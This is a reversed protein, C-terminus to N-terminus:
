LEKDLNRVLSKTRSVLSDEKMAMYEIYDLETDALTLAIRDKAIQRREERLQRMKEDTLIAHDLIFKPVPFTEVGNLGNYLSITSFDICEPHDQYFFGGIGPRRSMLSFEPEIDGLDYYLSKDDGYQKKASTVALVRDVNTKDEQMWGASLTPPETYYDGLHWSALSNPIGPKMEASYRNPKYTHDYRVVALVYLYGPETFSKSIVDSVDSTVSMAGVDGLFDTDTQANNSVQQVNLPIRTGGLYEPRQISADPSVVGWQGLLIEPFRSGSLALKEFYKQMQFALRLDNVTVSGVSGVAHLNNPNVFDYSAGSTVTPATNGLHFLAYEAPNVTTSAPVESSSTVVKGIQTDTKCLRGLYFSPGQNSLTHYSAKPDSGIAFNDGAHVQAQSPIDSKVGM